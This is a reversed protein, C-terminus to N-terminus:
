KSKHTCDDNEAGCISCSKLERDDIYCTGDPKIKRKKKRQNMAFLVIVFFLIMVLALIFTLLIVNM